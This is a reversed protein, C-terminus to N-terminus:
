IIEYYGKVGNTYVNLDEEFYGKSKMYKVLEGPTNLDRPYDFEKLYLILDQISANKNFYQAFGNADRGYSTSNRRGPHKMGFLNKNKHFLNSTGGATEFMSVAAFGKAMQPSYGAM